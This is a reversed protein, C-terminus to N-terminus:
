RKIGCGFFTRGRRGEAPTISLMIAKTVFIATLMSLAVGIALTFAFGKVFAQGLWFLIIAIILTSLKGDRISPWAWKFGEFVAEKTPKGSRIEEKLREFILVNADVAMGISLIFGAMAATTLTVPILKFIALMLLIYIALSLVATLGPLRYWIIMFLAVAALGWLGAEVGASTAKDGLSPGVTETSILELPVPLAGFNLKRAMEQASEATFNGEIVAQGNPIEDQIRPLSVARGDLFIGLIEGTNERTIKAFLEKGKDNFKLTVKPSGSVNNRGGFTVRAGELYRGTLETQDFYEDVIEQTSTASESGETQTSTGKTISVGEEKEEKSTKEFISTDAPLEKNEKLLKFNLVPTEGIMEKARKVNTMGPLEVILRRGTKSDESFVGPKKIQIRPETVGFANVRRSIVEKLSTMSDDVDRDAIESIDAQYTLRTGGALDLGLQFKYGSDPNVQTTYVFYGLGLGAILIIIATIRWKWM